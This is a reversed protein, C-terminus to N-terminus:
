KGGIDHLSRTWTNKRTARYMEYTNCIHQLVYISRNTNRGEFYVYQLLVEYMRKARRVATPVLQVEVSRGDTSVYHESNARHNVAGFYAVSTQILSCFAAFFIPKITTRGGGAGFYISIYKIRIIPAVIFVACFSIDGNTRQKETTEWSFFIHEGAFVHQLTHLLLCDGDGDDNCWRSQCIM